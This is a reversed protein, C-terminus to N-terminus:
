RKWGPEIAPSVCMAAYTGKWGTSPSVELDVCGYRSTVAGGDNEYM